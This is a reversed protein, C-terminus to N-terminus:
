QCPEGFLGLMILLDNVGVIGDTDVDAPGCAEECGFVGLATLLDGVDRLGNDNVDGLCFADPTVCGGAIATVNHRDENTVEATELLCLNEAAGSFSVRFLAQPLTSKHILSDELAVGFAFGDASLHFLHQYGTTDFLPVLDSFTAGSLQVSWGSIWATPNQVYVEVYSSDEHPLVLSFEVEEGPVTLPGNWDCHNEVGNDGLHNHGYHACDAALAVDTISLTGDGNLDVCPAGTEVGDIVLDAYLLPDDADLEGDQDLDGQTLFGPCNGACDPEATGFPHGICDVPVPCDETKTFNVANGNADREFSFCVAVANNSYSLEYSGNADPSYDWNVRIVLTYDGGPLDTIDVWQCDLFRSYIDQCGATIGMNSCTYKQPGGGYNCSGLDLVCFGNKFGITPLPAGGATYLAYEAYGEYHYHNHCADWEFQDPQASPAGIFYDETGINAIETDFRVIERTGYGQICGEEIMCGDTSNETTMELTSYARLGNIILDPGINPCEPDGALYCTDPTTAIPLYNCAEINMCGPIGGLYSAEFPVGANGAACLGGDGEIHVYITQGSILVPTVASQLGCDDESMTIFAESATEFVAMDCYDYLHIRTDCDTQGCTSFRYQGTTDVQLVYWSSELPATLFQATDEPSIVLPLADDCSSGPPCGALTLQAADFHEGDRLVTGDYRIQYTGGISFGDAGADYLWVSTCGSPICVDLGEVGGTHLTDGNADLVAFSTEQPFADPTIDIELRHLNLGVHLTDIFTSTQGEGDSVTLTIPYDGAADWTVQPNEVTSSAPSGNEFTWTFEVANGLSTNVFTAVEPIGCTSTWAFGASLPPYTCSGDELMACPDYNLAAPDTCGPSDGSSCPGILDLEIVYDSAAASTWANMVEVLWCGSGSLNYTDLDTLSATFNGDANNNWGSPWSGADVYGFGTNYGGVEIRNGNPATIALAMDGAWNSGPAVIDLSIDFASLACGATVDVSAVESGSLTGAWQVTLTDQATFSLPLLLGLLLVFRHM